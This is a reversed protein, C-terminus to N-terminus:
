FSKLLGAHIDEAIRQAILRASIRQSDLQRNKDPNDLYDQSRELTKKWLIGGPDKRKLQAAVRMRSRYDVVQDASSYSRLDSEFFTVEGTLVVDAEDRNETLTFVRSRSLEAVVADTVFNELYPEATRNDFLQIYLTRSDGGVWEDSSGPTHYGCGGLLLVLLIPLIRM